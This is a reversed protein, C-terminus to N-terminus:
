ELVTKFLMKKLIRPIYAEYIRTAQCVSEKRHRESPGDTVASAPRVVPAASMSRVSHSPASFRQKVLNSSSM